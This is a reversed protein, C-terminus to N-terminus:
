MGGRMTPAPLARVGLTIADDFWHAQSQPEAVTGLSRYEGDDTQAILIGSRNITMAAVRQSGSKEEKLKAVAAAVEIEIIPRVDEITLPSIAAVADQVRSDVYPRMADIARAVIASEDVPNTVGRLAVADIRQDIRDFRGDARELRELIPSLERDVHAKVAAVVEEGFKVGDFM